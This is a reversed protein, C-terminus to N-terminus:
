SNIIRGAAEDKFPVPFPKFLFEALVKESIEDASLIKTIVKGDETVTDFFELASGEPSRRYGCVKVAEEQNLTRLLSQSGEDLYIEVAQEHGRQVRVCYKGRTHCDKTSAAPVTSLGSTRETYEYVALGVADRVTQWLPSLTSKFFIYDRFRREVWGM